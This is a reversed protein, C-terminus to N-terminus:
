SQRKTFTIDMDYDLADAYAFISRLTVGMSTANELRAVQMQGTSMLRAQGRQSVGEAQRLLLMSEATRTLLATYPDDTGFMERLLRENALATSM